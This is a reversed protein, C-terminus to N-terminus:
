FRSSARGVDTDQFGEISRDRHEGRVVQALIFCQSCSRITNIIKARIVLTESQGTESLACPLPERHQLVRALVPRCLGLAALLSLGRSVM